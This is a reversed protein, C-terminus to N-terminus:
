AVVAVGLGLIGGVGALLLAQRAAARAGCENGEGTRRGVVYQCVGIVSTTFSSLLCFTAWGLGLAAAAATDSTLLAREAFNGASHFAFILAHSLVQPLLVRVSTPEVPKGELLVEKLTRALRRPATRRQGM